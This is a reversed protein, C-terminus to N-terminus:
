IRAPTLYVPYFSLFLSSYSFSFSHLTVLASPLVVRDEPLYITCLRPLFNMTLYSM